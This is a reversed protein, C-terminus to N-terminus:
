WSFDRKGEILAMGKEEKGEEDGVWGLGRGRRRADIVDLCVTATLCMAVLIAVFM